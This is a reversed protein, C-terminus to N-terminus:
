SRFTPAWTSEHVTVTAAHYKRAGLSLWICLRQAQAPNRRDGISASPPSQVGTPFSSQSSKRMPLYPFPLSLPVPCPCKRQTRRQFPSKVRNRSTFFHSHLLSDLPHLYPPTLVSQIPSPSFRTSDQPSPPCADLTWRDRRFVKDQASRVGETAMAAVCGQSAVQDLGTPRAALEKGLRPADHSM